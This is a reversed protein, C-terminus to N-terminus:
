QCKGEKCTGSKCETDVTCASGTPNDGAFCTSVGSFGAVLIFAAVLARVNLAIM